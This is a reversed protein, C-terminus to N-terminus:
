LIKHLTTAKQMWIELAEWNEHEILEKIKNMEKEFINISSILNKKNQKFIDSWMKPSSKAVRSMDKFGGAALALISRPDEQSMVANALSYSIAHPLHSIFAAHSDHESAGMHFINMNLKNFIELARNKHFASNRETDCLVVTHNDFLGKFAASPGFKETGALPHAAIFNKVIEKPTLEVIKEKTSGLDIITTKEDIDKLNPLINVIADVPIALLIIDCKKIDEITSIENILGLSLAEECHAINHDVGLVRKAIKRDQLDLGLSGGMLGLGIIGVTMKKEM